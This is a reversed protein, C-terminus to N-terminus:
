ETVTFDRIPLLDSSYEARRSDWQLYSRSHTAMNLFHSLSVQTGSIVPHSGVLPRRM